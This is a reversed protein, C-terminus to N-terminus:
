CEESSVEKKDEDIIVSKRSCSTRLASQVFMDLTQLFYLHCEQSDPNRLAQSVMISLKQCSQLITAPIEADMMKRMDFLRSVPRVEHSESKPKSSPDTSAKRASHYGTVDM